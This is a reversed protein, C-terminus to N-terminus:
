NDMERELNVFLLYLLGHPGRTLSLILAKHKPRFSQAQGIYCLVLYTESVWLAKFSVGRSTHINIIAYKLFTFCSNDVVWLM